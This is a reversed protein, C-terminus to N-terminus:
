QQDPWFESDIFEEFAWPCEEPFTKLTLGTESTASLRAQRYATLLIEPLKSKLGPNEKLHDIVSERQEIITYKWSNGRFAPQYQWKLLHMLLNKLFSQLARKESKSMDEIEEIIHELDIQDFKHKRLLDAQELSWTYLDDDYATSAM